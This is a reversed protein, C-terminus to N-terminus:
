VRHLGLCQTYVVHLRWVNSELVSPDTLDPM